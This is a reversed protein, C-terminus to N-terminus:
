DNVQWMNKIGKEGDTSSWFLKYGNTSQEFSEIQFGDAPTFLVAGGASKIRDIVLEFFHALGTVTLNKTFIDNSHLESINGVSSNLIKINGLSVNL